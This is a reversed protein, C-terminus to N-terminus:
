LIYFQFVDGYPGEDERVNALVEGELVFEASAPVNV